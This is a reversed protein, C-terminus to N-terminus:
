SSKRSKESPLTEDLISRLECGVAYQLADKIRPEVRVSVAQTKLTTM